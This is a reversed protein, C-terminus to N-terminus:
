KGSFLAQSAYTPGRLGVALRGCGLRVALTGCPTWVRRNSSNEDEMTPFGGHCNGRFSSDLFPALPADNWRFNSDLFPALPADNWRFSSDLFPALPADNWRFSSDLFPVLPADNWRFSSDLFPV